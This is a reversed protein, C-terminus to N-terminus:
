LIDLYVYKDLNYSLDAIVIAIFVRKCCSTFLKTMIWIRKGREKSVLVVTLQMVSGTNDVYIVNDPNWPDPTLHNHIGFARVHQLTYEDDRLRM